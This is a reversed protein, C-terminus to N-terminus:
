GRISNERSRNFAQEREIDALTYPQAAPDFDRWGDRRWTETRKAIDVTGCRSLIDTAAAAEDDSCEVTVVAGGRRIGEAYIRAEDGDVGVSVLAGMLGGVVAGMGAGALAAVIPGAAIVPGLVPITLGTLSVAMAAAGGMLGGTVAGATTGKPSEGDGRTATYEGNLNSAVISIRNAPMGYIMLEDAARKAEAYSDFLGSVSKM